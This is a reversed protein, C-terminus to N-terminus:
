RRDPRQAFWEIRGCFTCTLTYASKNAWDLDLLSMFSTNLQARGQAFERQGCHFCVVGKGEIAYEGPGMASTAAVVGRKLSTLVGGM